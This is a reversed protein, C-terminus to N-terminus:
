HKRLSDKKIENNSMKTHTKETRRRTMTKSVCSYRRTLLCIALRGLERVTVRAFADRAVRTAVALDVDVFAGRIRASVAANADIQDVPETALTGFPVVVRSAEAVHVFALRIRAIVAAATFVADILEDAVTQRTITTLLALHVDVFASRIGALVSSETMVM